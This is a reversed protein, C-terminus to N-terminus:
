WSDGSRSECLVKRPSKDSTSNGLLYMLGEDEEESRVETGQVLVFSEGEFDRWGHKTYFAKEDTSLMSFEFNERCVKTSAAMLSSGYGNRWYEPHVAVGEIYGVTLLKSDVLIKRPVIAGHAILKAELFGLFRYGGFTHEWDENSFDGEFAADLMKVLRSETESDLIEVQKVEFM